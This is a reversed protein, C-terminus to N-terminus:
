KALGAYVDRAQQWIRLVQQKELDSDFCPSVFASKGCDAASILPLMEDIWKEFYEADATSRLPETGKITYVPSTHAFVYLNMLMHLKEPGTVRAAIWGSKDVRVDRDFKIHYPDTAKQSQIVQGNQILDLTWMPFISDAQAAVHVTSTGTAPLAVEDGPEHGNVTFQLLPGDTVFTHGSTLAKLWNDYSLPSGSHAYVRVSGIAPARWYNTMSDTGASAPLRFGLNLAHYWEDASNYDDSYICMVDYYDIKKLAAFVPFEKSRHPLVGEGYFPHVLGGLGGESHVEDLIQVEDPYLAQRASGPTMDSPWKFTKMHMLSVHGPYSYRYEQGFSILRGPKSDANLGGGEFYSLDIIRTNHNAILDNMVNLDEGEGELLLSKPTAEFIGGYNMHIHNDGSYWGRESQNAIRNLRLEIRQTTGEAIEVEKKQPAYEFGKMAEVTTKGAPLEISFSGPTTFYHENTLSVIRHFAGLPAYSKGDAGTLYIRAPTQADTAADRIVIELKGVPTKYKFSSISIEAPEGGFVPLKFLRFVGGGNSIFAINQSDPSWAPTFVEGQGFTLQLPNADKASLLWLQNKGTRFSVYVIKTGDPSYRPRVHWLTEEQLLLEPTTSGPSLKWIGGTGLIPKGSFDRTSVFAVTKGDPSPSPEINQYKDVLLPRATGDNVSLEWLGFGHGKAPGSSTCLIKSGDANWQPDVSVPQDHSLQHANSGDANVIWLHISRGDDRTFAIQQGNHSWAPESDYGSGSTIQAAEGGGAPLIWISGQMAFALSKGDPSWAPSWPGTTVPPLYLSEMYIGGGGPLVGYADEFTKTQPHSQATAVIGVLFFALMVSILFVNQNECRCM